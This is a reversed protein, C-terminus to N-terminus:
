QDKKGWEHEGFSQYSYPSISDKMDYVFARPLSARVFAYSLDVSCKLGFAHACENGYPPALPQSIPPPPRCSAHSASRDREVGATVRVGGGGGWLCM